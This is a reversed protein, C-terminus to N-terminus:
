LGTHASSLSFLCAEFSKQIARAAMVMARKASEEPAIDEVCADKQKALHTERKTRPDYISGEVSQLAPSFHTPRM